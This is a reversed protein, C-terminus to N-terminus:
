LPISAQEEEQQEYPKGKKKGKKKRPSDSDAFDRLDVVEDSEDGSQFCPLRLRSNPPLFWCFVCHAFRRVLTAPDVDSDGTDRKNDGSQAEEFMEQAQGLEAQFCCTHLM